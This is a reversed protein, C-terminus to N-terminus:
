RSNTCLWKVVQCPSLAFFFEHFVNANVDDEIVVLRM